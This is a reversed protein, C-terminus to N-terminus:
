YDQLQVKQLEQWNVAGTDIPTDTGIYLSPDHQNQYVHNSGDAVHVRQGTSPNAYQSEGRIADIRYRQERDSDAMRQNFRATNAEGFARINAMRQNHARTMAETNARIQGMTAEHQRQSAERNAAFGQAQTQQEMQMWGPNVVISDQAVRTHAHIAELDGSATQTVSPVASWSFYRDSGLQRSSLSIRVEVRARHGNPLTGDVSGRALMEGNPGQTQPATQENGVDSLPVGSQALQPLIFQKVYTVPEMPPVDTASMQEALGMSRKQARLNNSMPGDGYTYQASPFYVIQASGDPAALTISIQPIPVAGDWKRYFAQQSRWGSPMKLAFAVMQQRDPDLIGLLRYPAPPGSPKLVNTMNAETAPEEAEAVPGPGGNVESDMSEASVEDDAAIAVPSETASDGQSEKVTSRDTCAVSIVGVLAALIYRVWM